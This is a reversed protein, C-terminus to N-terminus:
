TAVALVPHNSDKLRNINASILSAHTQFLAKLSLASPDKDKPSRPGPLHLLDQARRVLGGLKSGEICRLRVVSM